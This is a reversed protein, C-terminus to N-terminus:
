QGGTPNGGAEISGHNSQEHERSEDDNENADEDQDGSEGHGGLPGPLEEVRGRPLNEVDIDSVDVSKMQHAPGNLNIRRFLGHTYCWFLGEGHLYEEIEHLYHSCGPESCQEARRM